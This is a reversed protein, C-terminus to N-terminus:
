AWDRPNYREVGLSEFGKDATIIAKIGRTKMTQVILQDNFDKGPGYGEIAQSFESITPVLIDNMLAMAARVIKRGDGYLEPEQRQRAWRAMLYLVEQLVTLSTLGRFQESALSHIITQSGKQLQTLDDSAIPPQAAAYILINTDIFYLKDEWPL